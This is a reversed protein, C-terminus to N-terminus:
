RLTWYEGEKRFLGQDPSCRSPVSSVSAARLAERPQTEQGMMIAGKGTAVVKTEASLATITDSYHQRALALRCCGLYDSTKAARKLCLMVQIASGLIVHVM